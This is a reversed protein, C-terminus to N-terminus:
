SQSSSTSAGNGSNSSASTTAAPSSAPSAKTAAGNDKSSSSETETTNETKPGNSAPVSHKRAYDTVYWGSGKFQIAPASIVQEVTDKGCKPCTHLIPDSFKVIREFRHACATCHYEYLPM